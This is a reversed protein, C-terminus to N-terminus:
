EREEVEDRSRYSEDDLVLKKEAEDWRIITDKKIPALTRFYHIPASDFWRCRNETV